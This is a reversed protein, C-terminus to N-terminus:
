CTVLRAAAFNGIWDREAHNKGLLMYERMVVLLAHEYISDVMTLVRPTVLDLFQGLKSFRPMMADQLPLWVPIETKNPRTLQRLVKRIQLSSRAVIQLRHLQDRALWHQMFTWLTLRQVTLEEMLALSTPEDDKGASLHADLLQCVHLDMPSSSSSSKSEVFSALMDRLGAVQKLHLNKRPVLKVVNRQFVVKMMAGFNAATLKLDLLQKKEDLTASPDYAEPKEKILGLARMDDPIPGPRDLNHYWLLGSWASRDRFAKPEANSEEADKKESEMQLQPPQVVARAMCRIMAETSSTSSSSSPSGLELLSMAWNKTMVANLFDHQKQSGQAFLATLHADFGDQFPQYSVKSAVLPPMTLTTKACPPLARTAQHRRMELQRAYKPVALFLTQCRSVLAKRITAENWPHLCDWPQHKHSKLKFLVISLHSLGGLEHEDNFLPYGSALRGKITKSSSSNGSTQVAFLLAITSRLVRERDFYISYPLFKADSDDRPAIMKKYQDATVVQRILETAVQLALADDEDSKYGLIRRLTLIIKREDWMPEMMPTGPEEYWPEPTRPSVPDQQQMEYGTFRNVIVGDEVIGQSPIPDGDMLFFTPVLPCAPVTKNCYWWYPSETALAERCHRVVFDHLRKRRRVTDRDAVIRNRLNLVHSPCGGSSSSSSTKSLAHHFENYKHLDVYRLIERRRLRQRLTESWKELAAETHATSATLRTQLERLARRQELYRLRVTADEPTECTPAVADRMCIKDLNCFLTPTDVFTTADVSKDLIWKHDRTRRYYFQSKTTDLLAFHGEQVLRKRAVM